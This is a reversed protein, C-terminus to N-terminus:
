AQAVPIYTFLSLECARTCVPTLPLVNVVLRTNAPVRLASNNESQTGAAIGGSALEHKRFVESREAAPLKLAAPRTTNNRQM